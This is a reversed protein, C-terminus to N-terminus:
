TWETAVIWPRCERCVRLGLVRELAQSLAEQWPLECVVSRCALNPHHGARVSRQVSVTLDRLRLTM